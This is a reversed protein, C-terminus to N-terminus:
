FHDIFWNVVQDWVVRITHAVFSFGHYTYDYILMHDPTQISLDQFAADYVDDAINRQSKMFGGFASELAIGGSGKVAVKRDHALVIGDAKLTLRNGQLTMEIKVDGPDSIQIEPIYEDAGDAVSEVKKRSARFAKLDYLGAITNNKSFKGRVKLEAVYVDQDDEPISIPNKDHLKYM